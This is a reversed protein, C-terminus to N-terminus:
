LGKLIRVPDAGDWTACIAAVKKFFEAKKGQVESIEVVTGPHSETDIYVFRGDPAGTYGSQLVAVGAAECRAVWVDLETTWFAVHQQGELGSRRYDNFCSPHDDLPQVLEIQVSGSNAFAVSQVADTRRGRYCFNRVPAEEFFFFPGIGLVQTWHSL